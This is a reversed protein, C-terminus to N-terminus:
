STTWPTLSNGSLDSGYRGMLFFAEVERKFRAPEGRIFAGYEVQRRKHESLASFVEELQAEVNAVVNGNMSIKHEWPLPVDRSNAASGRRGVLVLAGALAAERPMRDKGPHHGLDLYVATRGLTQLAEERSMGAVPVFEYPAERRRLEDAVWGGKAPNYSVTRGRATIPQKEVADIQEIASYDTVISPTVDFHDYLFNWAYHSQALHLMGEWPPRRLELRHRVAIVRRATRKLRDGLSFQQRYISERGPRFVPSNDVSLWWCIRAARRAARLQLIDTEPAVLANGPVDDFASREPADYHAYEKVRQANRTGPLPMLFAEQGLERLTQVLQHLAEPGGSRYGRPYLVYIAKYPPMQEGDANGGEDDSVRGIVSM